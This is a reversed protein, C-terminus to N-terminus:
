LWSIRWEMYLVIAAMAPASVPRVIVAVARISLIQSFLLRASIAWCASLLLSTLATRRHVIILIADVMITDSTAIDISM